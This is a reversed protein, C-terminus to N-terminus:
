ATTDDLLLQRPNARGAGTVAVAEGGWVWGAGSRGFNLWRRRVLDTPTGDPGADWGEMPQVVWRNAPGLALPEALPSGRNASLARDDCPLALGLEIFRARLADVDPLSRVRTFRAGPM